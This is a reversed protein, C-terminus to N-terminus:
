VGVIVAGYEDLQKLKHMVKVGLVQRSFKMISNIGFQPSCFRLQQRLEVILPHGVAALFKRTAQGEVDNDCLPVRGNPFRGFGPVTIQRAFPVKALKAGLTRVAAYVVAFKM